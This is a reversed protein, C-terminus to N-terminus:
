LSGELIVNGDADVVEVSNVGGGPGFGPPTRGDDGALDLVGVGLDVTIAGAPLGNAFVLYTTGDPVSADIALKFRERWGLSRLDVRGSSDLWSGKAAGSHSQKGQGDASTSSVSLAVSLAALVTKISRTM